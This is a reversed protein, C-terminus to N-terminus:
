TAWIIILIISLFLAYFVSAIFGQGVGYWWSKKHRSSHKYFEEIAKRKEELVNNTFNIIRDKARSRYGNISDDSSCIKHFEELQEETPNQGSNDKKFEKIHNIKHQKYLSYAVIGRFYNENKVLKSFIFSYKRMNLLLNLDFKKAIKLQKLTLRILRKELPIHELCLNIKLSSIDM